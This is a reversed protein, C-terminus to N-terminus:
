VTPDDLPSLKLFPEHYLFLDRPAGEMTKAVGKCYRVPHKRTKCEARLAVKYARLTTLSSHSTYVRYFPLHQRLRDDARLWLLSSQYGDAYASDSYSGAAHHDDQVHQYSHILKRIRAPTYDGFAYRRLIRELGHILGDLYHVSLLLLPYQHVDFQDTLDGQVKRAKQLAQRVGAFRDDALLLDKAVLDEKIKSLFFAGDTQITTINAKALKASMKGHPTVFYAHPRIGKMEATLLEHIRVIDEDSFSYGIYIVTKTALLTKLTSGLVGRQLSRYCRKYDETTAVISGLNNISGHIKFVKRGPLDWFAYDEPTVYPTAGCEREFYDDWNTTIITDFQSITALEDHFRTAFRRVAPFADAYDFRQKIKRLLEARGNPRECFRSMLAPFSPGAEPEIDLEKCIETYFTSPFATRNETSIGAGAFIVVKGDIVAKIVADPLEFPLKQSCVACECTIGHPRDAAM